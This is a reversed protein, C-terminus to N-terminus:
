RIYQMLKRRTAWNSTVWQMISKLSISSHAPVIHYASVMWAWCNIFNRFIRWVIQFIWPKFSHGDSVQPWFFKSVHLEVTNISPVMTYLIANEHYCPAVHCLRIRTGCERVSDHREYVVLFRGQAEQRHNVIRNSWENMEKRRVRMWPEQPAPARALLSLAACIYGAQVGKM